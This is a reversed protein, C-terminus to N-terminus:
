REPPGPERAAREEERARRAQWMPDREKIRRSVLRGIPWALGFGIVASVVIPTWGYWNFTLALIVLTGTLAVGAMLAIYLSLRDM